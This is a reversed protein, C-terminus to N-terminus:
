SMSLDHSGGGQICTTAQSKICGEWLSLCYRLKLFGMAEMKRFDSVQLALIPMGM